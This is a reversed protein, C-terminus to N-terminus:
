TLMNAWPDLELLGHEIMMALEQDQTIEFICSTEVLM